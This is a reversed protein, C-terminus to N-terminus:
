IRKKFPNGKKEEEDKDKTVACRRCLLSNQELLM